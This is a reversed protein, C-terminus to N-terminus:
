ILMTFISNGLDPRSTKTENRQHFERLKRSVKNKLIFWPITSYTDSFFVQKGRVSSQRTSPMPSSVTEDIYYLKEVCRAKSELVPSSMPSVSTSSNSSLSMSVDTLHQNEDDEERVQQETLLDKLQTHAALTNSNYDVTSYYNINFIAPSKSLKTPNRNLKAQSVILDNHYSGSSATSISCSDDYDSHARDLAHLQTTVRDLFAKDINKDEDGGLTLMDPNTESRQYTQEDVVSTDTQTQSHKMRGLIRKRRSPQSPSSAKFCRTLSFKSSSATVVQSTQKHQTNGM